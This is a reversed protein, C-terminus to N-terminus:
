EVKNKRLALIGSIAIAGIGLLSIWDLFERFFLGGWILSFVLYSYDFAAIIAPPGKQYAVAAGVSGIILAAALLVLVGLLALDPKVWPGFLPNGPAGDWQGIAIGALVFAVNLAIALSVPDSSSLRASTIMMAVAYLFAAFVPLLTVLRFGSPEPRLILLVGFFGLIVAFWLHPAPVQSSLLSAMLTIFLPATYYAAAALSLPMYSLSSSYCLWMLVLVFSRMVVWFWSGISDDANRNFRIFVLVPLAIASRLIYMQWIPLSTSTAKIVADGLSLSLVSLIIATIAVRINLSGNSGVRM